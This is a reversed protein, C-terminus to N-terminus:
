SWPSSDKKLFQYDSLQDLFKGGRFNMVVDEIRLQGGDQTQQVWDVCEYGM